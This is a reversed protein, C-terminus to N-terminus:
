SSELLHQRIKSFFASELLSLSPMGLRGSAILGALSPEAFRASEELLDEVIEQAKNMPVVPIFSLEEDSPNDDEDDEDDDDEDIDDAFFYKEDM